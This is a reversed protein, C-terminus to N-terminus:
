HTQPAFFLTRVMQLLERTARLDEELAAIRQDKTPQRKRKQPQPIGAAALQGPTMIPAAPHKSKNKTRTKMLLPHHLFLFSCSSPPSTLTAFSRTSDIFLPPHQFHEVHQPRYKYSWANWTALCNSLLLRPPNPLHPSPNQLPCGVTLSMVPISTWMTAHMRLASTWDAHAAHKQPPGCGDTHVAHEQSMPARTWGRTHCTRTVRPGTDTRTHMRLDTDTRTRAVHVDADTRTDRRMQNHPERKGVYMASCEPPNRPIWGNQGM